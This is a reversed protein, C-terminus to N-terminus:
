RCADADRVRVYEASARLDAASAQAASAIRELAEISRAYKGLEEWYRATSARCLEALEASDAEEQAAVDARIAPLVRFPDFGEATARAAIANTIANTMKDEMFKTEISSNNSIKSYNGDCGLLKQHKNQM